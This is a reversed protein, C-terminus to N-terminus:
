LYELGKIAKEDAEESCDIELVKNFDARAKERMGLKRASEGRGALADAMAPYCEPASCVASDYADYADQYRYEDMCLRGYQISALYNSSDAAMATRASLMANATDGEDALRLSRLYHEHSEMADMGEASYQYESAPLDEARILGSKTIRFGVFMGFASPPTSVWFLRGAPDFIVSHADKFNNVAAPDGWAMVVGGPGSHDRLVALMDGVGVPRSSVLLEEMRELRHRSDTYKAQHANKEDGTFAESLFHNSVILTGGSVQRVAVKSSDFEVAAAKKKDVLLFTNPGMRKATKIVEVASEVDVAGALVRRALFAVPVGSLSTEETRASFVMVCLGHENMGTVAGVMGPWAVSAYSQGDSPEYYFVTKLPDLVGDRSMDFNRGAVPGKVASAKGCAAGGTCAYNQGIDQLVHYYLLDRYDHEQDPGAEAMGKMEALEYETLNDEISGLQFMIFTRVLWEGIFGGPIPPMMKKFAAETELMRDGLLKGHWYGIERSSGSLRVVSIGYVHELSGSGGLAGDDEPVEVRATSIALLLLSLAAIAAKCGIRAYLRVTSSKKGDM